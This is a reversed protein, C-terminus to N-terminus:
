SPNLEDTITDLMSQKQRTILEYNYDIDDIGLNATYVTVSIVLDYNVLSLKAGILTDAAALAIALVEHADRIPVSMVNLGMYLTSEAPRNLGEITIELDEEESLPVLWQVIESTRQQLCEEPDFGRRTMFESILRAPDKGGTIKRIRASGLKRIKSM